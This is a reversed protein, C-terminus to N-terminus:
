SGANDAVFRYGVGRVTEILQNGFTTALAQRLEYIHMRLPDSAPAANGWLLTNLADRTVSGPSVEMLRRVILVATAGLVVNGGPGMLLATSPDLSFDGARILLGGSAPIYHALAKIRALLEVPAFPKVVYDVGGADFGRLKDSIEGRATLFLIPSNLGRAKLERCLAIGDGDPLQVDLLVVDFCAELALHLAERVSYAYDVTVGHQDLFAGLGSAVDLDDEVLLVRIAAPNLPMVREEILWGSYDTPM